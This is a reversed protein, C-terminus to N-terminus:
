RAGSPAPSSTTIPKRDKAGGHRGLVARAVTLFASFVASREDTRYIMAMEVSPAPAVLPRYQVGARRLVRISAPMLSVGLGASVLALNTQLSGPHLLRPTFGAAQCAGIIIDYYAPADRRPFLIMVDSALDAIRVRASRALRHRSPLAAVLPERLIPEVALGPEDAPGRVFGVHISGDRLADIQAAPLMTRLKLEVEPYSRCWERLVRPLVELDASPIFGISLTGSEGRGARQAVRMAREAQALARQAEPVLAEGAPSLEVRRRTRFFLEVGLSQELKRIQQSLPPQAIQMRAAARGFHLQEAVALFYRLHRLEIPLRDLASPATVRNQARRTM